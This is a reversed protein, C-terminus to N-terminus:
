KYGCILKKDKTMCSFSKLYNSNINKNNILCNKIFPDQSNNNINIEQLKMEYKYATNKKLKKINKNYFSKFNLGLFSKLVFKNREFQNIYIKNQIGSILNDLIQIQFKLKTNNEKNILLTGKLHEIFISNNKIKKFKISSNKALCIKVNNFILYSNDNKSKMFDGNKVIYNKNLLFKNSYIDLIEIKNKIESVILEKAITPSYYFLIIIIFYFYKM